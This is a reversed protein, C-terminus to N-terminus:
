KTKRNNGRKKEKLHENYREQVGVSTLTDARLLISKSRQLEMYKDKHEKDWRPKENSSVLDDSEIDWGRIVCDMIEQKEEDSDNLKNQCHVCMAVRMTAGTDLLYLSERFEGKKKLIRQGDITVEDMMYNHCLVCHGYLDYDVTPPLSRKM